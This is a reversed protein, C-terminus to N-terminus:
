HATVVTVRSEGKCRKLCVSVARTGEEGVHRFTLPCGRWAPLSTLSTVLLHQCPSSEKGGNWPALSFCAFAALAWLAGSWPNIPKGAPDLCAVSRCAGTRVARVRPSLAYRVLNPPVLRPRESFLQFSIPGPIRAQLFRIRGLNGERPGCQPFRLAWRVRLRRALSGPFSSCVVM